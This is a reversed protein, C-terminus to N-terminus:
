QQSSSLTYSLSLLQLLAFSSPLLLIIAVLFAIITISPWPSVVFSSPRQRNTPTTYTRVYMTRGITRRSQFNMRSCGAGVTDNDHSVIITTLSSYFKMQSALLGM